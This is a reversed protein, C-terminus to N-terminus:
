VLTGDQMFRQLCFPLVKFFNHNCLQNLFNNSSLFKITRSKIGVYHIGIYLIPMHTHLSHLCSLTLAHSCPSTCVYSHLSKHAQTHTNIHDHSPTCLHTPTSHPCTFSLICTHKKRLYICPLFCIFIYNCATYDYLIFCELIKLLLSVM